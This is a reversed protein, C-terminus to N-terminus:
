ENKEGRSCYDSMKTWRRWHNCYGVAGDPDHKKCNCCYVVEVADVTPCNDLTASIMDLFNQKREEAKFGMFLAKDAEKIFDNADILRKENAM